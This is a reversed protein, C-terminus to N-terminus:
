NDHKKKPICEGIENFVAMENEVLYKRIAEIEKNNLEPYRKKLANFSLSDCNESIIKKCEEKLSNLMNSSTPNDIKKKELERGEREGTVPSLALNPKEERESEDVKRYNGQYTKNKSPTSVTYKERLRSSLFFLITTLLELSISLFIIFPVKINIPETQFMKGLNIFLPHYSENTTTSINELAKNAAEKETIADQYQHHSNLKAELVNIRAEAANIAANAPNICKSFHNAPCKNLREEAMIKKNKANELEANLENANLLGYKELKKVETEAQNKREVANEYIISKQLRENEKKETIQSMFGLAAMFSFCTLILWSIFCISLETLNEEINSIFYTAVLVISIKTLDFATGIMAYFIASGGGGFSSYFMLNCFIGLIALTIALGKLMRLFWVSIEPTPYYPEYKMHKEDM